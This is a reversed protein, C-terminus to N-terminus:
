KRGPRKKATQYMWYAWCFLFALVSIIVGMYFYNQPAFYLTVNFSKKGINKPEIYWANAFGKASIHNRDDVQKNLIYAKWGPDFSECLVLYFAKSAEIRVTYTDPNVKHVDRLKALSKVSLKQQIDELGISRKTNRNKSDKRADDDIVVVHPLVRGDKDNIRYLKLNENELIKDIMNDSVLRDVFKTALRITKINQPGIILRDTTDRHLAIYKVNALKAIQIFKNFEQSSVADALGSLLENDPSSNPFQVVNADSIMSYLLSKNNPHNIKGAIMYSSETSETTFPIVLIRYEDLDSVKKNRIDKDLSVYSTNSLDLRDFPHIVDGTFFPYSPILYVIVLMGLIGTYIKENRIFGSLRTCFYAFVIFFLFTYVHAFRTYPHRFFVSNLMLFLRGTASLPENTGKMVIILAILAAFVLMFVRKVEKNKEKLIWLLSVILVIPYMYTLVQILMSERFIPAWVFPFTGYLPTSWLGVLGYYGLFRMINSISAFKSSYELITKASTGLTFEASSAMSKLGVLQPILTWANLLIFLLMFLLFRSIQEKRKLPSQIMLMLWILTLVVLLIPLTPLAFGVSVIPTAVNVAALILLYKPLGTQQYRLLLYALLPLGIWAFTWGTFRPYVITLTFLNFNFLLVIAYLLITAKVKNEERLSKKLFTEYLERFFLWAFVFTLFVLMYVMLFQSAVLAKWYGLIPNLMKFLVAHYLYFPASLFDPSAFGLGLGGKWFFLSDYFYKLPNLKFRGDIQHIFNWGSFWRVVILSAISFLLGNRLWAKPSLSKNSTPIM